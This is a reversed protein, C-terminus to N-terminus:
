CLLLKRGDLACLQHQGVSDDVVSMNVLSTGSPSSEPIKITYSGNDSAALSSTMTIESARDNCDLM